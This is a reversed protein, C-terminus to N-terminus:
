SCKARWSSTTLLLTLAFAARLLELVWEMLQEPVSRGRLRLEADRLKMPFISRGQSM